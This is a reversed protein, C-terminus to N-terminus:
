GNLIKSRKLYLASPHYIFLCTGNRIMDIVQPAQSLPVAPCGYSRGMYPANLLDAGIYDAGHVVIARAEARDNFGRELGTLRLSLGNKGYYTNSTVYFGLSSELSEPRNSFRRAFDKGSNRGHAVYTNKLVRMNRIDLIYMRKHHSSQTFDCITLIDPNSLVGRATLKQWGKCAYRLAERSLGLRRLDLQEYLFSLSAEFIAGRSNYLRAIALKKDNWFREYPTGPNKVKGAM